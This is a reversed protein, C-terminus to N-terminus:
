RHREKGNAGPFHTGVAIQGKSRGDLRTQCYACYRNFHAQPYFDKGCDLCPRKPFGHPRNRQDYKKRIANQM